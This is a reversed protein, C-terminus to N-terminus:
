LKWRTLGKFVGSSIHRRALLHTDTGNSLFTLDRSEALKRLTKASYFSLHRGGELAYYPWENPKPLPDPLLRTTLLLSDSVAFIHDLAQGPDVCHQFCELATVLEYRDGAVAEFGRALLNPCYSDQWYFEFGEDRMLRVFLGDRGGYDLFKGQADFLNWLLMAVFNKLQLARAMGDADDRDGVEQANVLDACAEDLWYPEETCLFDCRECLYYAVRHRGLVTAHFGYEATGGCLKCVQAAWTFGEPVASQFHRLIRMVRDPEAKGVSCVWMHGVSPAVLRDYAEQQAEASLASFQTELHQLGIEEETQNSFILGGLSLAVSMILDRQGRKDLLMALIYASRVRGKALLQATASLMDQTGHRRGQVFDLFEHTDNCADLRFITEFFDYSENNALTSEERLPGERAGPHAM